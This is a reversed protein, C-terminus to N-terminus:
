APRIYFWVLHRWPQDMKYVVLYCLDNVIKRHVLLNMSKISFADRVRQDSVGSVAGRLNAEM